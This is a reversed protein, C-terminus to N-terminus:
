DEIAAAKNIMTVLEAVSDIGLKHYINQRHKEVTRVTIDLERAIEKSALGRAVLRAVQWERPRLVSLRQKLQESETTQERLQRDAAIAEEIRQLLLDTNFPKEVFDVAGLRMAEVAIPVRGYATIIIFPHTCGLERLKRYLEIGTGEPLEIDLILCGPRCPDYNELAETASGSAIVEYGNKELMWQLSERMKADDDVLFITPRTDM